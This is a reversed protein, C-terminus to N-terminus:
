VLIFDKTKSRMNECLNLIKQWEEGDEATKVAKLFNMKSEAVFRGCLSDAEEDNVSTAASIFINYTRETLTLPICYEIKELTEGITLDSNDLLKIKKIYYFLAYNDFFYINKLNDYNYNQMTNRLLNLNKLLEDSSIISQTM